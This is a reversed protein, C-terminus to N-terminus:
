LVYVTDRLTARDRQSPRADRLTPLSSAVPRVTVVRVPHFYDEDSKEFLHVIGLGCACAFGKVYCLIATVALDRRTLSVNSAISSPRGEASRSETLAETTTRGVVFIARLTFTM